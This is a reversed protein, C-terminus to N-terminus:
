ASGNEEELSGPKDEAQASTTPKRSTGRNLGGALSGRQAIGKLSNNTEAAAEEGNIVEMKIHKAYVPLMVCPIVVAMVLKPVLGGYGVQYEDGIINFAVNFCHQWSWATALSISTTIITNTERVSPPQYEEINMSKAVFFLIVVCVMTALSAFLMHGFMEDRGTYLHEHFEWEGWLLYGWSICMVLVLKCMHIATALWEKERGADVMQSLKPIVVAALVTLGVAWILMFWRAFTDHKQAGDHRWHNPYRGTLLHRVAQTILYAVVLGIIDFEMFMMTEMVKEKGDLSNQLWFRRVVAFLAVLFAFFLLCFVFSFTPAFAEGGAEGGYKAVEDQSHAGAAIGEFAIFHAGVGMFIMVRMEEDRWIYVIVNAIGYLAIMILTSVVETAYPFAENIRFTTIIQSFFNFWLVALFISVFTDLMKLTVQKLTGGALVMHAVAPIM